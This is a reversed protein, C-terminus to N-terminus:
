QSPPSSKRHHKALKKSIAEMKRLQEKQTSLMQSADQSAPKLRNEVTEGGQLMMEVTKRIKEIFRLVIKSSFGGLLALVLKQGEAVHIEQTIGSIPILESLLVGGLIGLIITFRHSPNQDPHYAKVDLEAKIDSLVLFTAGIASASALFFFNRIMVSGKSALLSLALSDSNVEKSFATVLLGTLAVFGFLIFSNLCPYKGLIKRLTGSKGFMDVRECHFLISKPTAPFVLLSLTNHAEFLMRKHKYTHQVAETYEHVSFLVSAPVEKGLETLHGIMVEIESM